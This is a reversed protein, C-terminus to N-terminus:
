VRGLLVKIYFLPNNLEKRYEVDSIMESLVRGFNKNRMIIWAVLKALWKYQLTMQLKHSVSLEPWMRKYLGDDYDKMHKASFDNKEFCRGIQEAAYMGSIAANGIGEGTM